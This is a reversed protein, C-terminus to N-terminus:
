KAHYSPSAQLMSERGPGVGVWSVPVDLIEGVKNCYSQANKPLDSFKTVKSIDEDWGPVTIYEVEVKSLDELTSPMTGEPLTKGDIKYAVGIKLEKLGSLVDLKTINISNYGNIQHSFKMLALDLWGCRRKRGTTVGFEAGVSQLREGIDNKLESPFPGSGVRTTYAKVVGIVNDIKNPSIGMGTAIGGSTTSSSTVMPYTGYDVDLLCANAGEALIYKGSNYAANVYQVTDTIMPLLKERLSELNELEEKGDYKFGYHSFAVRHYELLENYQTKFLNWNLFDGFRIGNRTTKSSYCPGIGKRTTGINADGRFEEQVGDVAKHFEFLMHARNSVLLRGKWDINEKDLQELEGFMSPVNVVCGNGIVNMVNPYLLGCPLLHFAYKKGKAVITHGANAGGNFRSVVDADEALIDVLKGKGEDGWQAGLVCTFKGTKANTTFLRVGRRRVFKSLIM